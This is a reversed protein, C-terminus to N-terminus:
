RSVLDAVALGPFIAVCGFPPHYVGSGDTAPKSATRQMAQNPSPENKVMLITWRSHASM